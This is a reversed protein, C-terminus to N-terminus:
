NLEYVTLDNIVMGDERNNAIRTIMRIGQSYNLYNSEVFRYLNRYNLLATNVSYGAFILILFSKRYREQIAPLNSEIQDLERLNMLDQIRDIFKNGPNNKM